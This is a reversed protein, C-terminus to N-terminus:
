DYPLVKFFLTSKKGGPQSIEIKRGSSISKYKGTSPQNSFQVRTGHLAFPQVINGAMKEDALQRVQKGTYEQNPVLNDVLWAITEDDTKEYMTDEDMEEEIEPAKMDDEETAGEDIIPEQEGPLEISKAGKIKEIEGFTKGGIQQLYLQKNKTMTPILNNDLNTKGITTTTQNISPHSEAVKFLLEKSSFVGDEFDEDKFIYESLHEKNFEVHEKLQDISEFDEGKNFKDIYEEKILEDTVSEPLLLKLMNGLYRYELNFKLQLLYDQHNKFAQIILEPEPTYLTVGKGQGNPPKKIYKNIGALRGIAQLIDPISMFSKPIYYMETLGWRPYLEKKGGGAFSIGRETDKNAVIAINGEFREINQFKEFLDGYSLKLEDRNELRYMFIGESEKYLRKFGESDLNNTSYVYYDNGTRSIITRSQETFIDDVAILDAIFKHSTVSNSTNAILSICPFKETYPPKEYFNKLYLKFDKSINEAQIIQEKIKFPNVQYGKVKGSTDYPSPLISNTIISRDQIRVFNFDLVGVYYKPKDLIIANNISPFSEIVLHDAVTASVFISSFSKKVLDRMKIKRNDEEKKSNKLVNLEDDTLSLIADSEDILILSNKLNAENKIKDIQISNQLFVYLTPKGSENVTGEGESSLLVINFENNDTYTYYFERWEQSIEEIVNDLIMNVTNEICKISNTLRSVLQNGDSKFNRVGIFVDKGALLYRISTAIMFATKGSQMQGSALTINEGTKGLLIDNNVNIKRYEIGGKTLVSSISVNNSIYPLSRYPEVQKLMTNIISFKLKFIIDEKNKQGLEDIFKVFNLKFWSYYLGGPDSIPFLKENKEIIPITTNEDEDADRIKEIIIKGELEIERIDEPIEVLHLPGDCNYAGQDLKQYNLFWDIRDIEEYEEEWDKKMQDEYEKEYEEKYENKMEKTFESFGIKNVEEETFSELNWNEGKGCPNARTMSKVGPLGIGLPVVLNHDPCFISRSFIDINKGINLNLNLISTSSPDTKIFDGNWNRAIKLNPPNLLIKPKFKYYEENDVDGVLLDFLFSKKNDIAKKDDEKTKKNQHKIFDSEEILKKLAESPALTKANKLNNLLVVFNKMHLGNCNEFEDEFNGEQIIALTSVCEPCVSKVKLRNIEEDGNILVMCKQILNMFNGYQNPSGCQTDVLFQGIIQEQNSNLGLLAIEIEMTKNLKIIMDCYERTDIVQTISGRLDNDSELYCSVPPLLLVEEDPTPFSRSLDSFEKSWFIVKQFDELYAPIYITDYFDPAILLSFGLFSKKRKKYELLEEDFLEEDFLDEDLADEDFLDEELLEEDFLDEELLEEDFLDEKTVRLNAEDKQIFYSDLLNLKELIKYFDKRILVARYDIINPMRVNKIDTDPDDLAIVIVPTTGSNSYKATSLSLNKSYSQYLTNEKTVIQYDRLELRKKIETSGFLEHDQVTIGQRIAYDKELISEDGEKESRNLNNEPICNIFLGDNENVKRVEYENLGRTLKMCFEKGYETKVGNITLYNYQPNNLFACYINASEETKFRYYPILYNRSKNKSFLKELKQVNLISVKFVKFESIKFVEGEDFSTKDKIGFYKRYSPKLIQPLIIWCDNIDSYTFFKKEKKGKKGEKVEVQIEEGCEKSDYISDRMKKKRKLLSYSSNWFRDDFLSWQPFDLLNFGFRKTPPGPPDPDNYKEYDIYNYILYFALLFSLYNKEINQADQIIKDAWYGKPKGNQKIEEYKKMERDYNTSNNMKFKEKLYLGNEPLVTEDQSSNLFFFLQDLTAQVKKDKEIPPLKAGINYKAFFYTLLFSLKTYRLRDNTVLGRKPKKLLLTNSLYNNIIKLISREVQYYPTPIYATNTNNKATNYTGFTIKSPYFDEASLSYNKNKKDEIDMIDMIDLDLIAPYNRKQQITEFTENALGEKAKATYTTLLDIFRRKKDDYLEYIKIYAEKDPYKDWIKNLDSIYKKGFRYTRRDKSITKFYNDYLFATKAREILSNEM